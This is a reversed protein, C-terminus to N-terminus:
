QHVNAQIPKAYWTKGDYGNIEVNWRRVAERLTKYWHGYGTVPCEAWWGDRYPTFNISAFPTGADEYKQLNNLQEMFEFEAKRDNAALHEAILKSGRNYAAAGM